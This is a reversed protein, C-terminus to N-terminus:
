GLSALLDSTIKQCNTLIAELEEKLANDIHIGGVVVTVLGTHACVKEAIIKAADVDKHGPVPVIWIDSSQGQGSLSPRPNALVVGGIHPYEGGVIQINIGNNIVEATLEVRLRGEGAVFSLKIRDM